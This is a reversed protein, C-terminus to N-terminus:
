EQQTQVASASEAFQGTLWLNVINADLQTWSKPDLVSKLPSFVSGRKM